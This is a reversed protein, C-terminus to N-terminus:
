EKKDSEVKEIKKEGTKEGKGSSHEGAEKEHRKHMQNMEKAHRGHMEDKSDGDHAYDHVAHETEHREQMSRREMGHRVHAPMAESSDSRIAGDAGAEKEETEVKKKSVAVHGDDGREMKPSDKYMRESRKSM